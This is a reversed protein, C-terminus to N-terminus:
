LCENNMVKHCYSMIMLLEGARIEVIAAHGDAEDKPVLADKIDEQLKMMRNKCVQIEQEALQKMEEHDQM